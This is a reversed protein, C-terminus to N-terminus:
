SGIVFMMRLATGVGEGGFAPALPLAGGLKFICLSPMVAAVSAGGDAVLGWRGWEWAWCWCWFCCWCLMWWVSSMDSRLAVAGSVGERM